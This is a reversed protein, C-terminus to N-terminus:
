QHRAARSRDGRAPPPYRDKSLRGRPLQKSHVIAEAREHECHEDAKRGSRQRRLAERQLLHHARRKARTKLSRRPSRAKKPDRILFAMAVQPEGRAAPPPDASAWRAM